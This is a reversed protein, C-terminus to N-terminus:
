RGASDIFWFRSMPQGAVLWGYSWACVELVSNLTIVTGQLGRSAKTTHQQIPKTTRHVDVGDTHYWFAQSYVTLALPLSARAFKGGSQVRLGSIEQVFFEVIVAILLVLDLLDISFLHM